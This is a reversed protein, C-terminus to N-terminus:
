PRDESPHSQRAQKEAQEARARAIVRELSERLGQAVAPHVPPPSKQEPLPNLFHGIRKLAWVWGVVGFLAGFSLGFAWEQGVLAAYRDAFPDEGEEVLWACRALNVVSLLIVQLVLNVLLCLPVWGAPHRTVRAALAGSVGSLVMSVFLFVFFGIVQVAIM